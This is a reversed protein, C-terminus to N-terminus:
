EMRSSIAPSLQDDGALVAPRDGFRRAALGLSDHMLAVAV